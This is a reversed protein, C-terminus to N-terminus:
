EKGPSHQFIANGGQIELMEETIEEQRIAKALSDLEALRKQLNEAAGEMSRLRYWNESRLSELFCRYLSIYLYEELIREFLEQPGMYITPMEPSTRIADIRERDPPLVQEVINEARGESIVTFVLTLTYYAERGYTKIIRSVTERLAGQIGSVSVASDAFAEFPIIRDEVFSRLRRGTIFLLDDPGAIGRLLEAIKENFPGCLGQASGCAVIIRGGKKREPLSLQPVHCLLDAMARLISNEYDRVSLVIDQTKRITVGAFAKMADVIDEMARFSGIKREIDASAIM